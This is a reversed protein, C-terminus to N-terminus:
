NTDITDKRKGYMEYLRKDLKKYEEQKAEETNPIKGEKVLEDIMIQKYHDTLKKDVKSKIVKYYKSNSKSQIPFHVLKLRNSLMRKIDELCAKYEEDTLKGDIYGETVRAYWAEAMFRSCEAFKRLCLFFRKFRKQEFGILIEDIDHIFQTAEEVSTYSALFQVLELLNATFYLDEMEEQGVFEEVLKAIYKVVCYTEKNRQPKEETRNIFYRDDLLSTYGEDLGYGIGLDGRAQIFGSYINGEEDTISSAMHLLEHDIFTDVRDGCVVEIKNKDMSYQAAADYCIGKYPDIYEIELTDLNNYFFSMDKKRDKNLDEVFRKFMEEKLRPSKFKCSDLTPTEGINVEILQEM